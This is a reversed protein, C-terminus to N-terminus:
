SVFIGFKQILPTRVGQHIDLNRPKVTVCWKRIMCTSSIIQARVGLCMGGLKRANCERTLNPTALAIKGLGHSGYPWLAFRVSTYGFECVDLKM